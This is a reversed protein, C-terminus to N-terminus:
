PKLDGRIEDILTYKRTTNKNLLNDEFRLNIARPKQKFKLPKHELQDCLFGFKRFNPRIILIM